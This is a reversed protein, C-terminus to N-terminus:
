PDAGSRIIWPGEYCEDFPGIRAVVTGDPARAILRSGLICPGGSEGMEGPPIEDLLLRDPVDPDGPPILSYIKLTQDTRNIIPVRGSANGDM